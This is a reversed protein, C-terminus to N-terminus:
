SYEFAFVNNISQMEAPLVYGMDLSLKTARTAFCGTPRKSIFIPHVPKNMLARMKNEFNIIDIVKRLKKFNNSLALNFRLWWDM